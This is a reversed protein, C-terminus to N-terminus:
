WKRCSWYRAKTRPGPNDCNHRARFSRRAAPNSKRIKMDPDGFNVKKVNGTSPDKVYVKFKKVDGQMPKGLPVSRGQYEAEDLQEDENFWLEGYAEYFEDGDYTEEICSGPEGRKKGPVKKYGDWCKDYIKSNPHAEAVGQEVSEVIVGLGKNGTGKENPGLIQTVKVRKGDAVGGNVTVIDGVQRNLKLNLKIEQPAAKQPQQVSSQPAPQEQKQTPKGAKRWEYVEDNLSARYALVFQKDSGARYVFSDIKSIRIAENTANDIAQKANYCDTLECYKTVLDYVNTAIYERPSVSDGTSIEIDASRLKIKFGSTADELKKGAYNAWYGPGKAQALTPLGAGAVAAAGAGMGKLFGRRDIEELSGELLGHRKMMSHIQSGPKAQQGSKLFADIMSLEQQKRQASTDVAPTSSTTSDNSDTNPEYYWGMGSDDSGTKAPNDFKFYAIQTKGWYGKFEGTADNMDERDFHDAEFQGFFDISRRYSKPKPYKYPDEGGDDGAGPAFENLDGESVKRTQKPGTRCKWKKDTSCYYEGHKCGEILDQIKM